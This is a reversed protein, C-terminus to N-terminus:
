TAWVISARHFLSPSNIWYCTNLLVSCTSSSDNSEGRKNRRLRYRCRRLLRPMEGSLGTNRSFATTLLRDLGWVSIFSPRKMKLM